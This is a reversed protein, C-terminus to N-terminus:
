FGLSITAMVEPTKYTLNYGYSFSINGLLRMEKDTLIMYSSRIGLTHYRYKRVKNKDYTGLFINQVLDPFGNGYFTKYLQYNENTEKESTDFIGAKIRVDFYQESNYFVGLSLLSMENYFLPKQFIFVYSPSYFISSQATLFYDGFVNYTADINTYLGGLSISFGSAPSLRTLQIGLSKPILISKYKFEASPSAASKNLESIELPNIEKVNSISFFWEKQTLSSDKKSKEMMKKHMSVESLPMSLRVCSTGFGFVIFLVFVILTASLKSEVKEVKM